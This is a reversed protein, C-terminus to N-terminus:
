KNLFMAKFDANTKKAPAVDAMHSDNDYSSPRQTAEHETDTDPHVHTQVHGNPAISPPSPPPSSSKRKVDSVDPIATATNSTTTSTIMPISTSSSTAPPSGGQPRATAKTSSLGVGGRKIGLGGRGGRRAGPQAPRKIPGPQHIKAAGTSGGGRSKFTTKVDAARRGTVPRDLEKREAPQNLLERVSGVVISRGPAIEKGEVGLAARGADKTHAFEVIAGQHDPRLVIKTLTGYPEMLARIRADNVTDPVQMLAVTRAHLSEKSPRAQNRPADAMVADTPEDEVVAHAGDPQPSSASPSDSQRPKIISTAQRKTSKSASLAVNLIRSKFKTMNMDLAAAAEEKASFVIFAIGKSKNAVNRPIRVREVKGYIKFISGLDEETASWDVNSVYVERGEYVPGERDQRHGPDSMKVVLKGSKGVEKGNLQTAAEADSASKFQVYCFRRHTNYKLSPFRVDVLEGYEMFLDRIYTEDAAAPFNTVFLTTGTGVQVEISSGDLDKMDKTQAALVDEESEFEITATSPRGDPEPVLKLSKIRGCDRFFQRVRIETAHLPLHRVIVTTHERDRKFGSADSPEVVVQDAAHDRQLDQRSKKPSHEDPAESDTTRKRKGTSTPDESASVSGVPVAEAQPVTASAAAAAAAAAAQEAEHQRRRVIRQTVKRAFIVAAQLNEVAEYGHAHNTYVELIKEPWDLNPRSLAQRLVSTAASPTSSLMKKSVGSSSLTFWYMMEWHYWRLWFEYSDGRSSILAKWVETRAREWLGGRSLYDVYIRQLRYNPDGAFDKGHKAEGLEKVTEIASRIGVEAVDAEEDTAGARFARRNLYCCWASYAKLVEEMGGIDMLGMSTAKHKVEEVEQFPKNESESSLMYQAWLEGSWPCHRTARQLVPLPSLASGRVSRQDALFSVYDEWLSATTAFRLVAREFLANCFRVNDRAKRVQMTEWELYESFASWEAVEDRLDVARQLRLEYPDRQAYTSKAEACRQSTTVMTDEYSANDYHTVFTSFTQFTQDWTAHPTRLRDEFLAKLHSVKQQNPGNTLDEFFLEAFRDWIVHSDHIRLRTARVAQRWVDLLMDWSFVEAGMAREEEPWAPEADLGHKSILEGLAGPRSAHFLRLVWNGYLLWLKVSGVEEATARQCLEIVAVRDEVTRALMIEDDICDAWLDEGLPFRSEMSERAQRLDALLEYDHPDREATEEPSLRVHSLLGKRFLGILKVHSQYLHSNAALESVLSAIQELDSPALSAAHFSRRVNKGMSRDSASHDLSPRRTARPRASGQVDAYPPVAPLQRPEMGDIKSRPGPAVARTRPQHHQMSALDALTDMGPTSPQRGKDDSFPTEGASSLRGSSASEVPPSAATQQAQFIAGHPLAPSAVPAPLNPSPVSSPALSSPHTGRFGGPSGDGGRNSVDDSSQQPSLLLNIDM